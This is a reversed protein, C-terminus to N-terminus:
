GKSIYKQFIPADTVIVAGEMMANWFYKHIYEFQPKFDSYNSYDQAKARYEPLCM